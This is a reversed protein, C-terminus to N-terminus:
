CRGSGIVLMTDGSAAFWKIFKMALQIPKESPNIPITTTGRKTLQTVSPMIVINHRHMPNSPQHTRSALQSEYFAVICFELANLTRHPKGPTNYNPKYWCYTYPVEFEKSKFAEVYQPLYYQHGWMIWVLGKKQGSLRGIVIDILNIQNDKSWTKSDWEVPLVGYPADQYILASM